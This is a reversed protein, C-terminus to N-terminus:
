ISRQLRLKQKKQFFSSLCENVEKKKNDLRVLKGNFSDTMQCGCNKCSYENIHNTIKQSVKFSHGTTGCLFAFPYFKKSSSSNKM